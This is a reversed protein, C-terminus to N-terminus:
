GPGHGSCRRTRRRSLRSSRRRRRTLRCGSWTVFCCSRGSAHRSPRSRLSSRSVCRMSPRPLPRRDPLRILRSTVTADPFPELWPTDHDADALATFSVSAGVADPVLRRAIARRELVRLCVNTAIRYLWTRASARGEFANRGRWARLMAEQAADEADQISGLMRYCHIRIERGHNEVLHEFATAGLPLPATDV